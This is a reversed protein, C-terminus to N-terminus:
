RRRAAKASKAIEVWRELPTSAVIEGIIDLPLEDTSKFHLCAKGMDLKKGAAKFGEKLRQAQTSDGYINMLHLSLYSKESALAAYWLPQKNYTESYHEVPVQYVLMNKSIVEEYGKPMHRRLVKRVREVERRREPPLKELFAAVTTSSSNKPM